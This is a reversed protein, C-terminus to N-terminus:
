RVSSNTTSMEDSFDRIAISKLCSPESQSFGLGIANGKKDIPAVWSFTENISEGRPVWMLKLGPFQRKAEDVAICTKEVDFTVIAIQQPNGYATRIVINNIGPGGPLTLARATLRDAFDPNIRTVPTKMIANLSDPAAGITGKIQEAFQWLPQSDPHQSQASCYGSTMALALATLLSQTKMM